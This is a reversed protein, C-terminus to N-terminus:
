MLIPQEDIQSANGIEINNWIYNETKITFYNDENWRNELLLLYSTMIDAFIVCEHLSYYNKLVELCFKKKQWSNTIFGIVMKVALFIKM